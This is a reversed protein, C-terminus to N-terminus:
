PILDSSQLDLATGRAAAYAKFSKLWASLAGALPGCYPNAILGDAISSASDTAGKLADLAADEADRYSKFAKQVAKAMEGAFFGEADEYPSFDPEGEKCRRELEGNIGKIGNYIDQAIPM